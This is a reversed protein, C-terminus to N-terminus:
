DGFHPVVILVLRPQTQEINSVLVIDRAPAISPELLLASWSAASWLIGEEVLLGAVGRHSHGGPIAPPVVDTKECRMRGIEPFTRLRCRQQFHQHRRFQVRKGTWTGCVVSLPRRFDASLVQVGERKRLVEEQAVIFM